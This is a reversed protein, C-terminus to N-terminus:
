PTSGPRDGDAPQSVGALVVRDRGAEKGALLAADARKVVDAFGEGDVAAALGVTVTFRPLDTRGIASELDARVRDAIARADHLDCDPFVVLFEEGGYRAVIDGPRTADRLVRAFLRLARDGADHGAGDNLAKFHDLDVYGVTYRTTGNLQMEGVALDLSRRNALGTLADTRAQGESRSLLRLGGVREGMRRALIQLRDVLMDAPPRDSADQVHIVGEATGAYAVPICAAWVAPGDDAPLFPCADIATSDKSLTVQGGSAAPCDSPDSCSCGEGDGIALARRLRTDTGTTMLVEIVGSGAMTRLAREAVAFVAEETRALELGRQLTAEFEVQNGVEHMRRVEAVMARHDRRLGRGMVVALAVYLLGIASAVLLLQQRAEELDDGVHATVTAALPAYYKEDIEDVAALQEGSAVDVGAALSAYGPSDRSRSVLAVGLENARALADAYAAQHAREGPADRSLSRYTRWARDMETRAEQADAIALVRAGETTAQTARVFAAQAALAEVKVDHLALLAPHIRETLQEQDGAPDGLAAVQVAVVAVGSVVGTVAVIVLRAISSLGM